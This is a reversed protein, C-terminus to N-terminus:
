KPHSRAERLLKPTAGGSETKHVGEDVEADRGVVVGDCVEAMNEFGRERENGKKVSGLEDRRASLREDLRMREMHEGLTAVEVDRSAGGERQKEIAELLCNVRM